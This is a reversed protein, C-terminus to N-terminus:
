IWREEEENRPIRAPRNLEVSLGRQDAAGRGGDAERYIHLAKLVPADSIIFLDAQEHAAHDVAAWSPSVFVDGAGWDFQTGNIVSQGSGRFVVYM